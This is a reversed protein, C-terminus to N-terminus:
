EDLVEVLKQHCLKEEELKLMGGGGNSDRGWWQFGEEVMPIGGGCNSDRGWWKFGEEATAM